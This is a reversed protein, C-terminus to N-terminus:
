RRKKLDCKELQLFRRSDPHLDLYFVHGFSVIVFNQADVSASRFAIQFFGIAPQSHLKV